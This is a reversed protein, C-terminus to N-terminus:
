RGKDTEPEVLGNLRKLKDIVEKAEADHKAKTELLIPELEGDLMKSIAPIKQLERLRSELLLGKEVDAWVEFAEVVTSYISIKLGDRIVRGLVYQQVFDNKEM